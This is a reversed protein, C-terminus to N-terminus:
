LFNLVVEGPRGLNVEGVQAAHGIFRKLGAIHADTLDYSMNEWYSV